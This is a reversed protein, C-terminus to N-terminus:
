LVKEEIPRSSKDPAITATEKTLEQSKKRGTEVSFVKFDRGKANKKTGLYTIRVPKGIKVLKMRDDLVASGWFMMMGTETEIFYKASMDNAEDKPEANILVGFISDGENEYKWIGPEVPNFEFDEEKV